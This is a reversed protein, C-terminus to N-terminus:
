AASEIQDHRRQCARRKSTADNAEVMDPSLRRLDRLFRPGPGNLSRAGCSRSLRQSRTPRSGDPGTAFCGHAIAEGCVGDADVSTQDFPAWLAVVPQVWHRRQPAGDLAGGRGSQLAQGTRPKRIRRRPGRSVDGIPRREQGLVPRGPEDLRDHLRRAARGRRPRHQRLPERCRQRPGLRDAMARHAAPPTDAPCFVMALGVGTGFGWFFQMHEPALLRGVLALVAIEFAAGIPLVWWVRKLWARRQQRFREVAFQGPKREDSQTAM